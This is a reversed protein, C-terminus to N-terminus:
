RVEREVRDIAVALEAHTEDPPLKLDHAVRAAAALHEALEERKLSVGLGANDAVFSGKGQRTVIVGARELELYARKITIVSVQTEAALARISPLEHGPQWDGVAVRQRIQEMLQQYMPRRDAQSIILSNSHM